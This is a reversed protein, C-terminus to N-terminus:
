QVSGNSETILAQSLIERGESGNIEGWPLYGSNVHFNMGPLIMYFSFVHLPGLHETVLSSDCSILM